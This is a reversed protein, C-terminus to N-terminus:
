QHKHVLIFESYKMVEGNSNYYPSLNGKYSSNMQIYINDTYTDHIFYYAYDVLMHKCLIVLGADDEAEYTTIKKPESLVDCSTLFLIPLLLLLKLKKM